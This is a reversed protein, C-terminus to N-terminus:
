HLFEVFFRLLFYFGLVFFSSILWSQILKKLDGNIKRHVFIIGIIYIFTNSLSYIIIAFYIDFLILGILLSSMKSILLSFNFLLQYKEIRLIKLLPAVMSWNVEFLYCLSLYSAFVGSMEWEPGFVIIMILDGFAAVAGIPILYLIHVFRTLKETQEVLRSVEGENYLESAKQFFVPSLSRDIISIPIDFLRISFSYIGVYYLSSFKTLIFIPALSSARALLKSSTIYIPFSKYEDFAIKMGKLSFENFNEKFKSFITIFFTLFLLIFASLFEGIILGLFSIKWFFAVGIIILKSLFGRVFSILSTKSFEKDRINWGAFLIRLGYIFILLPITYWYQDLAEAKLQKFIYSHSFKFIVFFILNTLVLIILSLHLLNKFQKQNKPLVFADEMSATFVYMFTVVISIYLSFLGYQEPTYIRSIIPLLLLGFLSGLFNSSALMSFNQVFSGKSFVQEKIKLIERITKKM